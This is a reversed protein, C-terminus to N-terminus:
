SGSAVIDDHIAKFRASSGLLGVAFVSNSDMLNQLLTVIGFAVKTYILLSLFRVLFVLFKSGLASTRIQNESCSLINKLEAFIQELDPFWRTSTRFREKHNRILFYKIKVSHFLPANLKVKSASSHM